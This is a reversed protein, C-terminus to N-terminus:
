PLKKAAIVDVDFTLPYNGDITNLYATLTKHNMGVRGSSNFTAKISGQKGPQIPLEPKEAITCGCSAEVNSFVLPNKGTNLFRFSIDVLTGEKIKVFQISSDLWQVTTLPVKEVSRTTDSNTAVSINETNNVCSFFTLLLLLFTLTYKM